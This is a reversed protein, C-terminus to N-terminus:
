SAKLFYMQRVKQEYDSVKEIANDRVMVLSDVYIGKIQHKVSGDPNILTVDFLDMWNLIIRVEGKHKFGNVTISLGGEGEESEYIPSCAEIGWSGVVMPYYTFVKKIYEDIYM